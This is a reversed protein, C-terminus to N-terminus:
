RRARVGLGEDTDIARAPEHRLATWGPGLNHDYTRLSGCPIPSRLLLLM